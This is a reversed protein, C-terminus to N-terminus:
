VLKLGGAAAEPWFEERVDPVKRTRRGAVARKGGQARLADAVADRAARLLEQAEAVVAPVHKEASKGRLWEGVGLREARDIRAQREVVEHQAGRVSLIRPGEARMARLRERLAVAQQEFAGREAPDETRRARAAVRGLKAELEAMARAHAAEDKALGVRHATATTRKANSAYGRKKKMEANFARKATEWLLVVGCCQGLPAFRAEVESPWAHPGYALWLARQHTVYLTALAQRVRRHEQMRDILRDDINADPARRAGGSPRVIAMDILPGHLSRFRADAEETAFHHRLRWGLADDFPDSSRGRRAHTDSSM